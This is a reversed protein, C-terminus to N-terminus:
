FIFIAKSPKPVFKGEIIGKEEKQLTRELLVRQKVLAAVGAQNNKRM